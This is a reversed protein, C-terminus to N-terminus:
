EKGWYGGLAQDIDDEYCEGDPGKKLFQLYERVAQRQAPNLLSFQNHTYDDLSTLAFVLMGMRDEGKIDAIMFAPLHFRMGAPDFFSLSSHCANLHSSSIREWREKEDKERERLCVEETEYDDIAQGQFLGIGTGLTVAAFANRVQECLEHAEADRDM